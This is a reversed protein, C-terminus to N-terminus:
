LIDHRSGRYTYQWQTRNVSSSTIILCSSDREQSQDVAEWYKQVREAVENLFILSPVRKKCNFRIQICKITPMEKYKSTIIRKFSNVPVVASCTVREETFPLM